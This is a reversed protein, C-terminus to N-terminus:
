VGKCAEDDEEEDEEENGEDGICDDVGAIARAPPDVEDDGVELGGFEAFDREDERKCVIEANAFVIAGEGSEEEWKCNDEDGRHEDEDFGVEAGGKDEGDCEDRDKERGAGFEPMEEGNGAEAERDAERNGDDGERSGRVVRRGVRQEFFMLDFSNLSHDVLDFTIAPLRVGDVVLGEAGLGEDAGAPELAEAGVACADDDFEVSEGEIVIVHDEGDDGVTPPEDTSCEDDGDIGDSGESHDENCAGGAIGEASENADTKSRDNKRM